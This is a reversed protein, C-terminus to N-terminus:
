TQRRPPISGTCPAQWARTLAEHGTPQRLVPEPGTLDLITWSAAYDLVHRVTPEDYGLVVARSLYQDHEAAQRYAAPFCLILAWLTHNM